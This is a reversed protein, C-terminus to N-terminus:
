DEPNPTPKVTLAKIAELGKDHIPSRPGTVLAWVNVSGEGQDSVIICFKSIKNSMEYFRVDVSKFGVAKLPQYLEPNGEVCTVASWINSTHLGPEWKEM